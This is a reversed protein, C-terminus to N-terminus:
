TGKYKKLLKWGGPLLLAAAVIKIIDGAIYPFVGIELVRGYGGQMRGSMMLVSLWLAGFGLICVNGALMALITTGIHRDWGHEALWGVLVAAVVFGFLYGGTPGVMWAITSGGGTFVPLGAAGEALYLLICLGGRRAGLLAGLMLVAFTQGTIPVPSFRTVFALQASLAIIMSGATILSVDYVLAARDSRPRFVEAISLTGTMNVEFYDFM